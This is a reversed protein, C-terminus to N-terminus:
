RCTVGDYVQTTLAGIITIDLCRTYARNATADHLSLVVAGGLGQAFGDRNFTVVTTGPNSAFTDTSTFGKGMRLVTDTGDVTGIAGTDSFIIWGVRWDTSATCSTANSSSCVSVTSGEKIAEARAFQMDGLLGNVESSVRNATTVYRYSPVGIAMLIAVITIVVILEVLTFGHQQTEM